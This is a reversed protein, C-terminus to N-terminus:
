VRDILLLASDYHGALDILLGRGMLFRGPLLTESM